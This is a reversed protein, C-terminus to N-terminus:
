NAEPVLVGRGNIQGARLRDLVLQADDLPHTEIPPPPIDQKRVLAMLDRLDQLSGVYSGAITLARMPLFPTPITFEGGMLGVAVVTAGKVLSDIALQLTNPNGVLDIAMRLGRGGPALAKIQAVVEPDRPDVAALAGHELAAARKVPDLDAFIAGFGGMGQLITLAMMGLGGAGIILVPESTLIREDFKKLAHYTTIGSCAYLAAVEPAIGDLPVCYRENPVLVHTSYGGDTIIGLTRPTPCNQEDGLACADCQRCGIWPYVVVEDGVAVDTVADGIAEVVGAIEHGMTRPALVGREANLLRRGGGLDYFGEHIHLDSHCVGAATIRVLVETTRPEPTPQERMELPQGWEAVVYSRM